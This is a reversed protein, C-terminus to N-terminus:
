IAKVSLINTNKQLIYTIQKTKDKKTFLEDVLKGVIIPGLSQKSSYTFILSRSVYLTNLFRYMRIYKLELVVM